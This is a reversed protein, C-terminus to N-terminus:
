EYLEFKKNRLIKFLVPKEVAGDADFSTVGSIGPYDKVTYLFNKIKSSDYGVNKIALALIRIADYATASYIEPTIGFKDYYNSIFKQVDSSSTDLATSTYITGEAADGAIDIVDKGEFFTASLFQVKLGIEKAQKLILAADKTVAVIYIAEPNASKIKTLQTRFDGSNEEFIEDAVIQGGLIKFREIMANRAGIGYSTNAYLIALKRFQLRDFVFRAMQYAEANADNINSFTYDGAKRIQPNVAGVNLQVIKNREAVPAIALVVGSSETIVAQIKHITYLNNLASIGEKADTKSDEYIIKIRRGRIGGQQNIEEVALDAGNKSWQGYQASSGTLPLIAGIKIERPEKKTQTVVLFIALAVVIIIGIVIWIKKM